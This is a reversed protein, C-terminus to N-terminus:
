PCPTGIPEAVTCGGTPTATFTGNKYNQVSSQTFQAVTFLSYIMSVGGRIVTTGKGTLDYAFGARPSFNGRDPKWLTDGVSPQGQQVMGLTPDFNALLNNAEKMPSMYSYRLGFNLTLKPAIRWDDQAFGAISHWNFTRETQGILQTARSPLGAFFDELATSKSGLTQKGQFDIRGRTDHNNTDVKIHSYEVGFKLGHKGRLYSVSDQFDLVPTYFEQPRGRWAGLTASLGSITVVPFGGLSTIGTNLPYGKGDALVNADDAVLAYNVKTYGTRFENVLSSSPVYVWNGTITYTRIPLTNKFASNVVPHAAGNGLYNGVVFLGNIRNKNSLNYDIKAVGNDSKNTTPFGPNYNTTNSPAGQILGGTCTVPATTCGFL